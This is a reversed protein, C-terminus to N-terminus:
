AGVSPAQDEPPTRVVLQRQQEPSLGDFADCLVRFVGRFTMGPVCSRIRRLRRAEEGDITIALRQVDPQTPTMM